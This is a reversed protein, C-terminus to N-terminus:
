KFLVLRREPFPDELLGGIKPAIRLNNFFGKIRGQKPRGKPRLFVGFVRNAVNRYSDFLIGESKRVKLENGM